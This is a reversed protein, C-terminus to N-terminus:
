RAGRPLSSDAISSLWIMETAIIARGDKGAGNEVVAANAVDVVANAIDAAADVIHAVNKARFHRFVVAFHEV